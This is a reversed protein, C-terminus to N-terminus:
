GIHLAVLDRDAGVEADSAALRRHPGAIEGLFIHGDIAVVPASLSCAFEVKGSAQHSKRRKRHERVQVDAASRNEFAAGNAEASRIKM